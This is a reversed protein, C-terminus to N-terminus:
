TIPTTFKEATAEAAQNEEGGEVLGVKVQVGNQHNQGGQKHYQCFMQSVQEDGAVNYATVQNLIRAQM